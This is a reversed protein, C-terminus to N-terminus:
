WQRPNWMPSVWVAYQPVSWVHVERLAPVELAALTTSGTHTDNALVIPTGDMQWAPIAYRGTLHTTTELRAVDVVDTWPVGIDSWGRLYLQSGDPSLGIETAQSELKAMEVGTAADVVALGLPTQTIQWNGHADQTSKVTEGVVYLRAGDSSLVGHRRTGDLVKAHAVGAGMTMLRDLWSRAPGIEVSTVSRDAFDITTLKDEDAHVIYLTRRDPSSVVAPTWWVSQGPEHSASEGYQGDLVDPLPQEWMVSLDAANFLAVRATSNLGNGSESGAGYVVLSQGDPTFELVHPLFGPAIRAAVTQSAVDIVIIAEAQPSRGASEDFYAVALRSGDPSFSMVYAWGDIKLTTTVDRWAQADILRLVGGRQNMDSPYALVALTKEDASFAYRFNRGLQIPAYGALPLGTRPDYPRLDHQKSRNNWAALLVSSGFPADSTASSPTSTPNSKVVTPSPRLTPPASTAAREVLRSMPQPSQTPAACAALLAATLKLILFTKRM